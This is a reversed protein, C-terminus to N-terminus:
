DVRVLEQKGMQGPGTRGLRGLCTALYGFQSLVRSMRADSIWSGDGAGPPGTGAKECVAGL